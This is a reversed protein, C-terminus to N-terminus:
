WVSSDSVFKNEELDALKELKQSKSPSVFDKVTLSENPFTDFPADEKKKNMYEQYTEPSVVLTILYRRLTCDRHFICLSSLRAYNFVRWYWSSSKTVVLNEEAFYHAKENEIKSDDEESEDSELDVESDPSDHQNHSRHDFTISKSFKNQPLLPNASDLRIEEFGDIKQRPTGLTM